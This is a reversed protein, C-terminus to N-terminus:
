WRMEFGVVDPARHEWTVQATAGALKELAHRFIGAFYPPPLLDNKLLLSARRDSSSEVLREGPSIMPQLAALLPTFLRGGGSSFSSLSVAASTRLLSEACVAGLETFAPDVGTCMPAIVEAGKWLLRLFDPAPYPQADQYPQPEATVARVHPEAIPGAFRTVGQLVANFFLGRVNDGPRALLLRRDLEAIDPILVPAAVRTGRSDSGPDKNRAPEAITPATRNSMKEDAIEDFSRKKASPTKPNADNKSQSPTRQYPIDTTSDLSLNDDLSEDRYLGRMFASLHASTAPLRQRVLFDELALQLENTTQYRETKKRALAKMVIADIQKPVGKVVSSPPPIKANVVAKLTATESDRKFLRTSTLVEYFVIGLGFVDSRLDLSEGKAQEPSMYAYKGKIAGTMTTSIKGTAKAVGFDILKVSGNFGVLINQPSVDRHILGLPQGAPGKAHHAFDLACAADAIIRCKLGLPIGGKEADARQNLARLSEGHVYEMAIYYTGDVEGLDYIQAINPHNLLAAIRAEDFFMEIFEEEEALHPLIRKVVVLKEFGLPGKQRALYVQGMGGTALKKILHYRGVTKSM